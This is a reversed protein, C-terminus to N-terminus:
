SEELKFRRQLYSLTAQQEKSSLVNNESLEQLLAQADEASKGRGPFPCDNCTVKKYFILKNMHYDNGSSGGASYTGSAMTNMSILGLIISSLTLVILRNNQM